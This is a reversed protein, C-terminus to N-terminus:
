VEGKPNDIAAYGLVEIQETRLDVRPFVYSPNSILAIGWCREPLRQWFRCRIAECVEATALLSELVIFGDAAPDGGLDRRLQKSALALRKGLSQLNPRADFTCRVPISEPAFVQVPKGAREVRVVGTHVGKEYFFSSSRQLVAMTSGPVSALQKETGVNRNRAKAEVERIVKEIHADSFLKSLRIEVRADNEVLWNKLDAGVRDSITGGVSLMRKQRRHEYLNERKVEIYFRYPHRCVLLDVSAHGNPDFTVEFNRRRYRRAISFVLITDLKEHAAICLRRIQEQINEYNRFEYLCQLTRAWESIHIGHRSESKTTLLTCTDLTNLIFWDDTLSALAFDIAAESIDIGALALVSLLENRDDNQRIDLNRKLLPM